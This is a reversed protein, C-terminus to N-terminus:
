SRPPGFLAAHSAQSDEIVKKLLLSLSHMEDDTKPGLGPPPWVMDNPELPWLLVLNSFQWQMGNYMSDVTTAVVYVRLKGVGWAVSEINTAPGSPGFDSATTGEPHIALSAPMSVM